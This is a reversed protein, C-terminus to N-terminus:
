GFADECELPLDGHTLRRCFLPVSPGASDIMKREELPGLDAGAPQVRPM